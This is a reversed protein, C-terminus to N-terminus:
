LICSRHVLIYTYYERWEMHSTMRAMHLKELNSSSMMVDWHV